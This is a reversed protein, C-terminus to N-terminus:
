LEDLNLPQETPRSRKKEQGQESPLLDGPSIDRIPNGNGDLIIIGEGGTSDTETTDKKARPYYSDCLYM